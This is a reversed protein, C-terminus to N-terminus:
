DRRLGYVTTSVFGEFDAVKDYNQLLDGFFSGSYRSSEIFYDPESSIIAQRAQEEFIMRNVDGDFYNGVVTMESEFAINNVIIPDGFITKAKDESFVFEKVRLIDENPTNNYIITNANAFVIFVLLLVFAGKYETKSLLKAAVISYFPISLLFYHYFSMRFFVLVFVDLLLPIMSLEFEKRDFYLFFLALLVFSSSMALYEMLVSRELSNMKSFLHYLVTERFFDYGFTVFLFAFCVAMVLSLYLIFKRWTKNKISYFLLIPLYLFMMYRFLVAVVISLASFFPKKRLILLLSLLGFLIAPWMGYGLSSFALLQPSLLFVVSSILWVRSEKKEFDKAILFVLLACLSACFLPLIKGVFLSSGFISFLLSLTYLQLPPHAYFFDIYPVLGKEVMNKAMNFYINEDSYTAPMFFLKAVFFGLILAVLIKHEKKM